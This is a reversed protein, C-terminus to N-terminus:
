CFRTTQIGLFCQHFNVQIKIIWRVFHNLILGQKQTLYEEFKQRRESRSMVRGNEDDDDHLNYVLVCDIPLLATRTDSSVLISERRHARRVPSPSENTSNSSVRYPM